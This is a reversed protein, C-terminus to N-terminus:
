KSENLLSHHHPRHKNHCNHGLQWWILYLGATLKGLIIFSIFVIIQDHMCSCSLFLCLNYLNTNLFVGHSNTEKNEATNKALMYKFYSSTKPVVPGQSRAPPGIPGQLRSSKLGHSLGVYDTLPRHLIFNFMGVPSRLLQIVNVVSHKLFPCEGCWVDVVGSMWWVTHLFPCETLSHSM